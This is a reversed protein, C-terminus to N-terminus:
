LPLELRWRTGFEKDTELLLKAKLKDARKQINLLGNGSEKEKNIGIGNDQVILKLVGDEVDLIVDVREAQSHRVVNTLMEKFVMWLHQRVDMKLKGPIQDAIHLTYEIGKSEMLDSAYRRCKVLFEEWQDNEPNIAWVIDTINEKADGASESIRSMFYSKKKPDKDRQVAEAFLSIGTLTASVDDHLDNAIRTRMREVKLIQNVRIKFAIYLIGTILITYMFYAWWARYWPPLISFSLQDMKGDVEYVNRSRVKFVYDGEPLNTYDKQTELSWPSWDNDFGELKYSYTNRTEDIYSAAAYTFRMENDEYPLVIPKIPEGFGGYILSDNHVYIGTINTKFDTKYDWDPNTLEYLGHEGGFLVHDGDCKIDYIAGGGGILQYPSIMLEGEEKFKRTFRLVRKDAFFWVDGNDCQEFTIVQIDPIDDGLDGFKHEKILSDSEFDYRYLGGEEGPGVTAVYLTSDIFDIENFQIRSLDESEISVKYVTDSNVRYVDAVSNVFIQDSFILGEKAFNIDNKFKNFELKENNSSYVGENTLFHLTKSDSYSRLFTTIRGTFISEFGSGSKKLLTTDSSILYLEENLVISKSSNMPMQENSFLLFNEPQLIESNYVSYASTIFTNHDSVLISTIDFDIGNAGGYYLVPTGLTFKEIGGWLNLWLTSEHDLYLGLVSEFKFGSRANYVSKLEGTPNMFVLGGTETTVALVSDSIFLADYPYKGNIYDQGTGKVRRFNSGDFIFLGVGGFGLLIEDKNLSLAFNLRDDEFIISKNVYTLNGSEFKYIGENKNLFIEERFKFAIAQPNQISYDELKEEQFVEMGEKGYFFIGNNSQLTIIHENNKGQFAQPNLSKLSQLSFQNISDKRGIGFDFQGSILLENKDTRFLSRVRGSYGIHNDKWARGNFISIGEGHGFYIFQNSDQESEWVQFFGRYTEPSYYESISFGQGILILPAFMFLVFLSIRKLDDNKVFKLLNVFIALSIRSM